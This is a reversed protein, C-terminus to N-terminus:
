LTTLELKWTVYFRMKCQFSLQLAVEEQDTGMPRPFFTTDEIHSIVRTIAIKELVKSTASLISVVRYKVPNFKEKADKCLM